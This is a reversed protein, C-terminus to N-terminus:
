KKGQCQKTQEQRPEIFGRSGQEGGNERMSKKIGAVENKECVFSLEVLEPVMQTFSNSRISFSVRERGPLEVTTVPAPSSQATSSRSTGSWNRKNLVSATTCPM